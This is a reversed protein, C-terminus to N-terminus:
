FFVTLLTVDDLQKDEAQFSQWDSIIQQELQDVPSSEVVAILRDLGLQQGSGNEAETLGDSYVVIADGPNVNLVEFHFDDDSKEVIGLPLATSNFTQRVKGTNADRFLMRPMGGNGITLQGSSPSYDLLACCMFMNVPLFTKLKYNLENLISKADLGKKSMTYFTDTVPITGVAAPLGHGTFDNVLAIWSGDERLTQLVLDGSFLEAPEVTSTLNPIEDKHHGIATNLISEALRQEDDIRQQIEQLQRFQKEQLDHLDRIRQMAKLKSSLLVADIPKTLYDDAGAEVGQAMGQHEDLATVMIIPIFKSGALEKIKRTAENGDMVPMMIDMFIMYLDDHQQYQEVAQQGNEAEIVNFGQRMLLANLLKRNPKVDDVVLVTKQDTESM